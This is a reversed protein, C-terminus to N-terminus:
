KSSVVIIFATKEKAKMIQIHVAQGEATKGMVMALGPNNIKIEGSTLHDKYWGAVKDVPDDTFFEAFSSTTGKVGGADNMTAGQFEKPMTAGEYMPVGKYDKPAAIETVGLSSKSDSTPGAPTPADSSQTSDIAKKCGVVFIMSFLVFAVSFRLM